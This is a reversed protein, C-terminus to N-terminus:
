ALGFIGFYSAKDVPRLHINLLLQTTLVVVNSGGKPM